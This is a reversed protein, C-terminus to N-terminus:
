RLEDPLYKQPINEFKGDIDFMYVYVFRHESDDFLVYDFHKDHGSIYHERVVSEYEFSSSNYQTFEWERGLKYQRNKETTYEEKNDFVCNLYVVYTTDILDFDWHYLYVEDLELGQPDPLKEYMSPHKREMKNYFSNYKKANTTEINYCGNFLVILVSMSVAFWIIKRKLAKKM